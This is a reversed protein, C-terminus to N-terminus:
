TEEGANPDSDGATDAPIVPVTDVPLLVEPEGEAELSKLYAVLTWIQDEPIKGEWTPMGGPRGEAISEYVSAPDGGYIWYEDQLNPGIAGGTGGHCGACNYESYLTKGQGIATSDGLFPHTFVTAPRVAPGPNIWVEGPVGAIAGGPAMAVPVEPEEECAAVPLALILLWTGM